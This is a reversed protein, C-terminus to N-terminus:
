TRDLWSCLKHCVTPAFLNNIASLWLGVHSNHLCSMHRRRTRTMGLTHGPPARVGHLPKAQHSLILTPSCAQLREWGIQTLDLHREPEVNLMERFLNAFDLLWQDPEYHEVPAPEAAAAAAAAEQASRCITLWPM